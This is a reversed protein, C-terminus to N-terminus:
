STTRVYFPNFERRGFRGIRGDITTTEAEPVIVRVVAVPSGAPTLDVVAIQRIGYARLADVLARVDRALDDSMADPIDSLHVTESPLDFYWRGKPLTMRRRAHAGMAGDPDGERLIDERAAQIDVVRSQVSETLAREAAHRPSLSCGLGTHAMPPDCSSDVLSALMVVPLGPEELALLRMTMGARAVCAALEDVVPDGSPLRVECAHAIDASEGGLYFRPLLQSRIYFLSWVHREIVECLAHYVAEVVANGSALGNSSTTRFLHEGFWPCQVLALPVPMVIREILESAAVASTDADYSDPLVGLADLDLYTRLERVRMRVHPLAAVAAIQREVAEMVASVTAAALTRGKGNYVSILDPSRPVVACVTPVESRDLLTTNGVRTIGYRARLEPVLAATRQLPACRDLLGRAKPSPPLDLLPERVFPNRM